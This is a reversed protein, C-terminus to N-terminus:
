QDFQTGYEWNFNLSTEIKLFKMEQAFKASSKIEKKRQFYKHIKKM